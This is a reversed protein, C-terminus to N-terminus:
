CESSSHTAWMVKKQSKFIEWFLTINKNQEFNLKKQLDTSM